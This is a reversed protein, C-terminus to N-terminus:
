LKPNLVAAMLLAMQQQRLLDFGMRNWHFIIWFPLIERLGWALAGESRARRLAQVLAPLGQRYRRLAAAEEPCARAFAREDDRLLPLLSPRLALARAIVPEGPDLSPEAPLRGTLTMKTWVDWLEWEDETVQRLLMHLLVLSMAAAPLGVGTTLRLRQYEFVFVSERTFYEHALALGEPGGFQAV